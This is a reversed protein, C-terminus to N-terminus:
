LLPHVFNYADLSIKGGVLVDIHSMNLDGGSIAGVAGDYRVSTTSAGTTCTNDYHRYWGCSGNERVNGQWNESTSKSLIGSLGGGLNIGGILSYAIFQVGNRSIECLLAGTEADNASVPQSGTFIRIVGNKLADAYSKGDPMMVLRALGTSLKIM